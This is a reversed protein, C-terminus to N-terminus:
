EYGGGPCLLVLPRKTIKLDDSPQQIYVTLKAYDLSGEEAISFEKYIM